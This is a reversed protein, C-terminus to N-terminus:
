IPHDEHGSDRVILEGRKGISDSAKCIGSLDDKETRLSTTRSTFTRVYIKQNNAIARGFVRPVTPALDSSNATAKPKRSYRDVNQQKSWIFDLFPAIRRVM